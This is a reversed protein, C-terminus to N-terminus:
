CFFICDFFLGDRTLSEDGEGLAYIELIGMQRDKSTGVYVKIQYIYGSYWYYPLTFYTNATNDYKVRIEGDPNVEFIFRKDSELVLFNVYGSSPFSLAEVTLVVTIGFMLNDPNYKMDINEIKMHSNGTITSRFNGGGMDLRVADGSSGASDVGNILAPERTDLDFINGYKQAERDIIYGAVAEARHSYSPPIWSWELDGEIGFYFCSYGYNQIMGNFGEETNTDTVKALRMM